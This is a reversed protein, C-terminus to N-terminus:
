KDIELRNRGRAAKAGVADDDAILIRASSAAPRGSSGAPLSSDAAIDTEPFWLAVTTGEGRTSRIALGGDSQHAFGRAL